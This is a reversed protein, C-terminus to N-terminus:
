TNTMPRIIDIFSLLSVLFWEMLFLYVFTLRILFLIFSLRIFLLFLSPLKRILRLGLIDLFLWEYRRFLTTELQLFESGFVLASSAQIRHLHCCIRLRMLRM